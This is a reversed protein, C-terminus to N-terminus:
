GRKLAAMMQEVRMAVLPNPDHRLLPLVQRLTKPSAIQLYALGAERVFGVPHQLCVVIQETTLSWRMAHALHFCCALLWDSLFHRLELLHRLRQQPAMAQYPLLESLCNLKEADSRRDLINLIISKNPLDITNDLIELGRAISERANSQVSLAATQIPKSEYLLRMLLFIREIADTESDRLARQLLEAEASAPQMGELDVMSAYLHALIQLEQTVLTEIGRRGLQELAADVGVDNPIRLLVRLLARRTTGWATLLRSVLLDIAEPTGIQGITRWAQARIGEPKYPDEAFEVLMPIAEDGLRMLARQAAERTSKYHLGRLLAPYYEELHTSAIAELMACRVRLSEDQLLPKIYLRLYQLYLADGLARCGMVREREQKSTLMRRLIDTAEAKQMPNGHRLLLAAATGRVVPDTEATLYPKLQYVDPELDTKWIYRLTLALVEPMLPQQTLAQVQRLYTPSPYNLMTELSQRQLEPSFEPLLPSLIRGAGQPDVETLLEICSLRAEDTTARNLAEVVNRELGSLDVNSLSLHGRDSSTVLVELYKSRLGLVALLWCSSFLATYLLFILGQSQLFAQASTESIVQFLAITALIGAGTLGAALPEAMGQVVSQIRNRNAEPIPQFLIPGTSAVLTYRLLEDVFKLIIVGAFLSLLGTLTLTSLSILLAPPLSAIVFVGLKEIMRGSLFWQTALEFIGLIASFLALFDAIKDISMGRELQSLYQFDLLVALVQVMIFFALVLIVYHREPGQLRRAAFSKQDDNTSRRSFDPFFQRYVRTLYLLVGAGLLLMLCALLIINSLGILSRLLPLSLGSVVDAALIGSSILPYTRKIERITFLQNSTIATNLDNVVYIAELWLRMLFITYGGMLAPHLGARFLLLPLAMLVSMVVISRHLPLFKQMWSYVVGAGTGIGAGAIYIWPLSKAGYEGLFLAAVSVELWLIGVSTLTYFAFM